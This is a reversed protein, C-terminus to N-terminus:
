GLALTLTLTPTLTLTLSLTLTLTLPSPSQRPYPEQLYDRMTLECLQMQIHLVARRRHPEESDLQTSTLSFSSLGRASRRAHSASACSYSYSYSDSDAVSSSLLSEEDSSDEFEQLAAADDDLEQKWVQYYRVVNPHDLKALCMAERVAREQERPSGTLLVKKVAYEAGDLVHRARYVRGFGGKGLRAGQIFEQMYRSPLPAAAAPLPALTSLPALTPTDPSSTSQSLPQPSAPSSQGTSIAPQSGDSYSESRPMGVADPRDRLHEPVQVVCLLHILEHESHMHRPLICAHVTQAEAPVEVAIPLETHM